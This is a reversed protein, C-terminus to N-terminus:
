FYETLVALPRRGVFGDNLPHWYDIDRDSLKWCLLYEFNDQRAPFDLLGTRLDRLVVGTATIKDVWENICKLYEQQAQSLLEISSQFELRRARLGDLEESEACNSKLDDLNQEAIEYRENRQELKKSLKELEENADLILMRLQPLLARAEEITFTKLKSMARAGQYNALIDQM